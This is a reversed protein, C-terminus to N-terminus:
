TRRFDPYNKSAPKRDGHQNQRHIKLCFRSFELALNLKKQPSMRRFIENQIEEAKQPSLIIRKM